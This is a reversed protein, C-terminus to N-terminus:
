FNYKARIEAETMDETVNAIDLYAPKKDVFLQTQLTFDSQDDFLGAALSYGEAQKFKYYLNSGCVSCFARKAWDSSDFVTIFEAGQFKIEDKHYINAFHSGSIKQCDSCHCIGVNYSDLEIEFSVRGCKCSATHMKTLHNGKINQGIIPM